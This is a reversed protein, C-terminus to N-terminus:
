LRPTESLSSVMRAEGTYGERGAREWWPLSWVTEADLAGHGGSKRYREPM